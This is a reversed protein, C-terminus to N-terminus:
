LSLSIQKFAEFFQMKCELPSMENLSRMLSSITGDFKRWFFGLVKNNCNSILESTVSLCTDSVQAIFTIIEFINIAVLVTLTERRKLKERSKM